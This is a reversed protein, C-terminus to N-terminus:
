GYSLQIFLSEFSCLHLLKVAINTYFNFNWVLVGSKKPCGAIVGSKKHCGPIYIYTCTWIYIHMYIHIYIYIPMYVHFICINMCIYIYM